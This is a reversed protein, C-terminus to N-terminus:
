GKIDIQPLDDRAIHRVTDAIQDKSPAFGVPRCLYIDLLRGNRVAKLASVCAWTAAAPADTWTFVLRIQLSPSSLQQALDPAPQVTSDTPLMAVNLPPVDGITLAEDYLSVHLLIFRTPDSAATEADGSWGGVRLQTAALGHHLTVRKCEPPHNLAKITSSLAADIRIADCYTEPQGAGATQQAAPAACAALVSLMAAAALWRLYRGARWNDKMIDPM